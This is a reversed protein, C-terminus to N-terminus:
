RNGRANSRGIKLKRRWARNMPVEKVVNGEKDIVRVKKTPSPTFKM